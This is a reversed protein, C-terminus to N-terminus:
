VFQFHIDFVFFFFCLCLNLVLEYFCILLGRCFAGVFMSSCYIFFIFMSLVALIGKQVM